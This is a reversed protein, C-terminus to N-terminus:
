NMGLMSSKRSGMVILGVGAALAIGGLIPPLPVSKRTEATINLDGVDLVTEKETYPFQQYILAATGVVVLLIGLLVFPKLKM